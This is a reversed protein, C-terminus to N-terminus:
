KKVAIEYNHGRTMIIKKTKREKKVLCNKKNEKNYFKLKLEELHIPEYM